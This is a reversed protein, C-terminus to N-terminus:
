FPTGCEPCRRELLGKLRYGCKRCVQLDGVSWGFTGEADKAHRSGVEATIRGEKVLRLIQDDLTIMGDRRGTQIASELKEIKGSRIATGVAHNNYMVELALIRREGPVASPLLHQSIVYRLSLSLQTRVDDQSDRPFLDVFRTVAGKADRTHLTSFVLHGTEAAALAMEATPRDRIEGVLIVDPDQRLAFRLGSDFTPVDAGVERQSVVSRENKPFVYEVPEEITVIRYGGEDNLINVLAAMSSTKGSGTIGTFLVLGNTRHVIRDALDTPFGLWELTPIEVPVRRFCAGCQGQHIFLNVRFRESGGTHDIEASFDCDSPREPMERISVPLIADIMAATQEATLPTDGVPELGGHVRYVPRYGVVLHLDAAGREVM